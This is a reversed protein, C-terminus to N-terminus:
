RSEFLMQLWVSAYPSEGGSEHPPKAVFGDFLKPLLGLLFLASWAQAVRLRHEEETGAPLAPRVRALFGDLFERVQPIPPGSYDQQTLARHFQAVILTPYRLLDRVFSSAFVRLAARIDGGEREILEDIERLSDMLGSKLTRRMVEEVLQDKSGFYYNIAAANVGAERAISRVTLGDFGDRELCTICAEAIRDKIASRADDAMSM